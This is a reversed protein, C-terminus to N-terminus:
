GARRAARARAVRKHAGTMNLRWRLMQTSVGLRREVDQQTFQGRAVALAMEETILLEGALRNAKDENSSNFNRCGTMGDIAPAPEHHLLGHALEHTLNSNQRPVSHSDNHVIGRYHDRFVTVASIPPSRHLEITLYKGLDAASEADIWVGVGVDQGTSEPKSSADLAPREYRQRNRRWAHVICCFRHSGQELVSCATPRNDSSAGHGDGSSPRRTNKSM